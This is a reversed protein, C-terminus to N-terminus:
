LVIRGKRVLKNSKYELASASSNQHWDKDVGDRYRESVISIRNGDKSRVNKVRVKGNKSLHHLLRSNELHTFKFLCPSDKTGHTYFKRCEFDWKKSNRTPQKSQRTQFM